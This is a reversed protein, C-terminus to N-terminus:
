LDDNGAEVIDDVATARVLPEDDVFIGDFLETMADAEWASARVQVYSVCWIGTEETLSYEVYTYPKDDFDLWYWLTGVADDSAWSGLVEVDDLDSGYQSLYHLLAEDEAAEIDEFPVENHVINSLASTPVGSLSVYDYAYDEGEDAATSLVWADPDWTVVHGYLPGEYTDQSGSSETTKPQYEGLVVNSMARSGAPLLLGAAAGAVSLGALRRRTSSARSKRPTRAQEPTAVRTM